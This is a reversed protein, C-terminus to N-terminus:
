TSMPRFTCSSPCATPQLVCQAPPRSSSSSGLFHQLVAFCVRAALLALPPVCASSSPFCPIRPAACADAVACVAFANTTVQCCQEMAHIGPLVLVASFALLRLAPASLLIRRARKDAFCLLSQLSADFAGNCSAGVTQWTRKM